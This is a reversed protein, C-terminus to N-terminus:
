GIEPFFREHAWRARTLHSLTVRMAWDRQTVLDFGFITEAADEIGIGDEEAVLLWTYLAMNRKDYETIEPGTPALGRLPLVDAREVAGVAAGEPAKRTQFGM